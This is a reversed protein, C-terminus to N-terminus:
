RQASRGPRRGRLFLPSPLPSFFFYLFFPTKKLAWPPAQGRRLAPQVGERRRPSEGGHRAVRGEEGPRPPAARPRWGGLTAESM